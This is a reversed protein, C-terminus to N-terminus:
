TRAGQKPKATKGYYFTGNTEGLAKLGYFSDTELLNIPLYGFGLVLETEVSSMDRASAFGGVGSPRYRSDKTQCLRVHPTCIGM